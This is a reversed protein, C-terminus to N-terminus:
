YPWRVSIPFWRPRIPCCIAVSRILLPKRDPHVPVYAGPYSM